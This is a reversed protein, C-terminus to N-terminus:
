SDIEDDDDYYDDDDDDEDEDEDEDETGAGSDLEDAFASAAALREAALAQVHELLRDTAVPLERRVGPYAVCGQLYRDSWAPNLGVLTEKESPVFAGSVSHPATAVGNVYIVHQSREPDFAVVVHTWVGTEHGQM